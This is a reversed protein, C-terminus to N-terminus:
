NPFQWFLTIQNLLSGFFPNKVFIRIIKLSIKRTFIIYRIKQIRYGLDIKLWHFLNELFQIKGAPSNELFGRQILYAIGKDPKKNFINLGTRYHRKRIVENVTYMNSVIEAQSMIPLPSTSSPVVAATRHYQLKTLRM